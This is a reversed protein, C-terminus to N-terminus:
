VHQLVRRLHVEIAHWELRAVQAFTMLQVDPPYAIIM